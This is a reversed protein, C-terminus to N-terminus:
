LNTNASWGTVATVPGPLAVWFSPVLEDCHARVYPFQHTPMVIRICHCRRGGGAGLVAVVSVQSRCGDVCCLKGDDLRWTVQLVTALGFM